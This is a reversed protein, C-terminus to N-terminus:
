AIIEEKIALFGIVAVTRMAYHRASKSLTNATGASSNEYATNPHKHEKLMEPIHSSFLYWKTQM